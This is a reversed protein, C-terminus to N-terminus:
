PDILLSIRINVAFLTWDPTFSVRVSNWGPMVNYIRPFAAGQFCVEHNDTECISAFVRSTPRTGSASLNVTVTQGSPNYVGLWIAEDFQNNIQPSPSLQDNMNSSKSDHTETRLVTVQGSQMPAVGSPTGVVQTTSAVSETQASGVTALMLLVVALGLRSKLKTYKM